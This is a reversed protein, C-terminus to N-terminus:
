DEDLVAANAEGSIVVSGPTVPENQAKPVMVVRGFATDKGSKLTFAISGSRGTEPSNYEGSWDGVLASLDSRPGIVPVPAPRSACGALLVAAIVAVFLKSTKM